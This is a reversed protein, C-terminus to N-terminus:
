NDTIFGILEDSMCGKFEEFRISNSRVLLHEPLGNLILFLGDNIYRLPNVLVSVTYIKFTM